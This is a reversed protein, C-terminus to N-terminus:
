HRVWYTVGAFEVSTYDQQLERAAQEWDICTNPWQAHRNIAGIDEAFDRAYQEFYSDSILTAGHRWDSYGEAEERLKLLDALEERDNADIEEQASDAIYQERDWSCAICDCGDDSGEKCTEKATDWREGAIEKCADLDSQLDDIRAIIDRSDILDDSNSVTRRPM